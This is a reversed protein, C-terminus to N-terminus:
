SSLKGYSSRESEIVLGEARNVGGSVVMWVLGGGGAVASTWVPGPM